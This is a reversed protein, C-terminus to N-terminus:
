QLFCIKSRCNTNRTIDNRNINLFINIQGFTWMPFLKAHCTALHWYNWLSKSDIITAASSTFLRHLPKWVGNVDWINDLSSFQTHQTSTCPIFLTLSNQSWLFRSIIFQEYIDARIIMCNTPQIQRDTQRSICYKM